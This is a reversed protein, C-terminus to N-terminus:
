PHGIRCVPQANERGILVALREVLGRPQEAIEAVRDGRARDADALRGRLDRRVVRVQRDHDEVVVLLM